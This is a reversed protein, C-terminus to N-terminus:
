DICWNAGRAQGHIDYCWGCAGSGIVCDEWEIGTSAMPTVDTQGDANAQMGIRELYEVLKSWERGSEVLHGLCSGFM